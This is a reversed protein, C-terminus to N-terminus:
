TTDDTIGSEVYGGRRFESFYSFMRVILAPSVTITDKSQEMMLKNREALETAFAPSFRKDVSIPSWLKVNYDVGSTVLLLRSPHPQICNVVNADAKLLMVIECTYRDWIFVYGCDSGSIIFDNGWFTAEKLITRANRHGKYQAKIPQLAILDDFVSPKKNTKSKNEVKHCDSNSNSQETNNESSNAIETSRNSRNLIDSRSVEGERTSSSLLDGLSQSYNPQWNQLFDNHLAPTNFVNILVETMRDMFRTQIRSRTPDDTSPRSSPGTDSWDGRLRIQRYPPPTPANKLYDNVVEATCSDKNLSFLYIEENSYSALMDEGDPSYSLSSIRYARHNLHPVTFAFEPVINKFLGKKMIKRRDVIRVISDITAIALQYPKVPNIAITSVPQGCDIFEHDSCHEKSCKVGTRLDYQRVTGDESCSLFINDEGPITELKYCQSSHCTFFNWETEKMRELDLNLVSGDSSCSIIHTSSTPLFKACYISTKHNTKYNVFVHYAFPNTIVIRKDDGATLLLTGSDNWNVSNVSGYHIDLTKELDLRQVFHLSNKASNILNVSNSGSDNYPQFYVNRFFGKSPFM